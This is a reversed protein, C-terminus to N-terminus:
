RRNFFSSAGGEDGDIKHKIQMLKAGAEIASIREKPSTDKNSLVDKIGDELIKLFDSDSKKTM